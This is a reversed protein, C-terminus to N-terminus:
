KSQGESALKGTPHDVKRRQKYMSVCMDYIAAGDRDDIVREGDKTEYEVSFSPTNGRPENNSIRILRAQNKDLYGGIARLIQTITVFDNSPLSNGRQAQGARDLELIDAPTYQLTVPMPAPPPQYGCLIIYGGTTDSILDITRLGRLELEQGICRLGTSYNVARPRVSRKM